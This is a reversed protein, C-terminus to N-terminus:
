MNAVIADRVQQLTLGERQAYARLFAVLVPGAMDILEQNTPATPPPDAPEPTNGEDIWDQVFQYYRNDPNDPVTYRGNVLWGGEVLKVTEITINM